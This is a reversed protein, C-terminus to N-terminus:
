WSAQYIFRYEWDDADIPIDKLVNDIQTITNRMDQMYWEDIEYSGFFFGVQPPLIDQAIAPQLLVSDCLNRLERLQEISVPIKQCEDRGGDLACFWAHIANAKRWYAVCATVTVSPVDECGVMGAADMIAHYISPENGNYGYGSFYQERYLYMDLGM